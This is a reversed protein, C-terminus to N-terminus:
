FTYASLFFIYSFLSFINVPDFQSRFVCSEKINVYGNFGRPMDRKFDSSFLLIMRKTAEAHKGLHIQM